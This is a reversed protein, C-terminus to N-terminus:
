QKRSRRAIEASVREWYQQEGVDGAARAETVKKQAESYAQPGQAEILDDAMYFHRVDRHNRLKKPRYPMMVDHHLVAEVEFRMRASPHLPADLKITRDLREWQYTGLGFFIPVGIKCEDHQQADHIPYVDRTTGFVGRETPRLTPASASRGKCHQMVDPLKPLVKSRFILKGEDDDLM